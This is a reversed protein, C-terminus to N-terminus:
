KAEAKPATHAKHKVGFYGHIEFLLYGGIAAGILAGVLALFNLAVIDAVITLAFNILFSWFLLNWGRKAREKLPGIAMVLLITTVIYGISSIMISLWGLGAYAYGPAYVSMYPTVAASLSLAVLLLPVIAFLGLVSLVAGILALWWVNEALWKQANKPLHPAKKYWGGITSELNSATAM